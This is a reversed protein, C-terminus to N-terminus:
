PLRVNPRGRRRLIPVRRWLGWWRLHYRVANVYLARESECDVSYCAGINMPVSPSHDVAWAHKIHDAAGSKVKEVLCKYAAAVEPAEVSLWADHFALDEQLEHIADVLRAQAASDTVDRRRIRYPVETWKVASQLAKAYEQRQRDRTAALQSLAFTLLAGAAILVVIADGLFGAITPIAAGLFEKIDVLAGGLRGTVMDM